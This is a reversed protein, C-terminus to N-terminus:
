WGGRQLEYKIEDEIMRLYRDKNQEAPEELFKEVTGPHRLKKGDDAMHGEHIYYGYNFRGGGGRATANGVVIVESELGKTDAEGSIQRRLNGTDLPAVDRAERVWDDKIDGMAREAGKAALEPSQELLRVLPALNLDISFGGNRAM